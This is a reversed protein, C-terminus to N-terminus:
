EDFIPRQPGFGAMKKANVKGADFKQCSYFGDFDEIVPKM